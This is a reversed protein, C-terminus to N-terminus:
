GRLGVVVFRTLLLQGAGLTRSFEFWGIPDTPPSGLQLLRDNVRYPETLTVNPVQALAAQLELEWRLAESSTETGNTQETGLMYQTPNLNGSALKPALVFALAVVAAARLLLRNM